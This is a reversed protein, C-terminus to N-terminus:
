MSLGKKKSTAKKAAAKKAPKKEEKVEVKEAEKAKLMEYSTLDINVGYRVGDETEFRNNHMQGGMRVFDGKKITGAVVAEYAAKAPKREGNIRVDVTTTFDKESDEPRYHHMVTVVAFKKDQYVKVDAVNGVIEAANRVEKEDQKVDLEINEALALIQITRYQTETGQITNQKNVLIGDLSISHTKPKYEANERNSANEELDKGIKQYAKVVKKDDTFIAVEHYTKRSQANGEKDKYNEITAVDLNIATRGGELENMRVGNLYGYLHVMNNRNKKVNEKM